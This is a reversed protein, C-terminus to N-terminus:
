LNKDMKVIKKNYPIRKFEHFAKEIEHFPYIYILDDFDSNWSQLLMEAAEDMLKREGNLHSIKIVAEKWILNDNSLKPEEGYYRSIVILTGMKALLNAADSFGQISSAVDFVIDFKGTNEKVSKLVNIRSCYREKLRETKQKIKDFLSIELKPYKTLIAFAVLTGIGGSGLICIKKQSESSIQAVNIAHIAVSLPEVLSGIYRKRYSPLTVLYSEHIDIFNAFGKNSYLKSTYDECMHGYSAKCYKCKGCRFNPDIAVYEGIKRANVGDGVGIITGCHEHGLCMPYSNQDKASFFIHDTGCIGCYEIAIRVYQPKIEKALETTSIECEEPGTLQFIQNQM